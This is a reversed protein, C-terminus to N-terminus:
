GATATSPGGINRLEAKGEDSALFAVVARPDELDVLELGKRDAHHFASLREAILQFTKTEGTGTAGAFLGHRNPM